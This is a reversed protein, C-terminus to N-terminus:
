SSINKLLENVLYHPMEHGIFIEIIKAEARHLIEALTPVSLNFEKALERLSIKRPYDYYGRVFATYLGLEQYPTLTYKSLNLEELKVVKYGMDSLEKLGSKNLVFVEAIRGSPSVLNIKPLVGQPAYLVLCRKCVDTAKVRVRMLLSYKSRQVVEIKADKGKFERIENLFLKIADPTGSVKVWEEVYETQRPTGYNFMIKLVRAAISVGRNSRDGSAGSAKENVRKLVGAIRCPGEAICLGVLPKM